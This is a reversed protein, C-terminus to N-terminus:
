KIIKWYEPADNQGMADAISCLDDYFHPCNNCNSCERCDRKLTELLELLHAIEVVM